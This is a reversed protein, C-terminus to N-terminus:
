ENLDIGITCLQTISCNASMIADTEEELIHIIDNFSKYTKSRYRWTKKRGLYILIFIGYNNHPNRLYQDVLQNQLGDLLEKLSWNDAIKIEIHINEIADPASLHIDAKNRNADEPERHVKYKGNSRLELEHALLLQLDRENTARGL